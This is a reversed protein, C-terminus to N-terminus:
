KITLNNNIKKPHLSNLSQMLNALRDRTIDGTLTIEGNSVSANVGPYDKTADRVGNELAEDPAIEVPATRMASSDTTTTAPENNQKSKDKCAALGIGATLMLIFFLNKLQKM